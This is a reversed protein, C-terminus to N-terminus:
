HNFLFERSNCLAWLVDELGERRNAAAAVIKLCKATEEERPSRSFTALYLQRVINADNNAAGDTAGAKAALLQSVRGTKASIKRQLLDGNAVHLVQALNPEATRECECTIVRAPRGLTDLFYSAFNPDPLEVAHTGAPIGSYKEQTGCASDIADLLVEAPLRKVNYHTYFRTDAANEATLASSLQYTRSVMIDRMLQKLDFGSGVFHDALADLLAPNAPPNTARMDDIPEVLGTGMFYGWFRNAINRSFLRNEASTLWDALPRRLDRYEDAIISKGGLPTPPVVKRSRPHKISGTRRVTVITDGGLAGFDLSGKSSVRTFFAALGYYDQQSYTEFPHHHCKACALRVGLFNQATAEALDEPKKAIKYYNAPGSEFVSGQATILERVFQDVPKNERLSGRIWNYLAWMGGDGLTNRNNRLLDGWKLTWYASWENHYVDRNADGTLGLLEDVLQTRKDPARSAVFSEIKEAPPLAGLCDLFARRLFVEDSCLGSPPLNLKQWREMVLADIYNVPTIGSLDISRDFPVVVMSIKAQGQFRVMISTQGASDATIHGRGDVGAVSENMSDYQALHTVDSQRGDDYVATVRLQRTENTRYVWEPPAVQLDVLQPEQGSPAAAGEKLWAVITQYDESDADFRKGGGHSLALTAKALLLSDQPAVMSVRRQLADRVIAPHDTKPDFGFLSIKFGAKGFQSGHCGGGNCGNRTFVPMVDYVFGVPRDFDAVSIKVVAEQKEWRVRVSGQGEGVPTIRGWRDVQVVDPALSEYAASRTADTQQDGASVALQLRAMKGTLQHELPAVALGPVQAGSLPLSSDAAWCPALAFYGWLLALAFRAATTNGYM